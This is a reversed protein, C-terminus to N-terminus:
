KQELMTSRDDEKSPNKDRVACEDEKTKACHETSDPSFPRDALRIIQISNNGDDLNSQNLNPINNIDITINEDSDQNRNITVRIQATEAFMHPYLLQM